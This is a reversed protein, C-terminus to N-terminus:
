HVSSLFIKSIHPNVVRKFAVWLRSILGVVVVASIYLSVLIMGTVIGFIQPLRRLVVFGVGRLLSFLFLNLNECFDHFWSEREEHTSPISIIDRFNPFLMCLLILSWGFVNPMVSLSLIFTFVILLMDLYDHMSRKELIQRKAIDNM